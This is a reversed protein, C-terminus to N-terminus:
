RQKPFKKNKSPKLAEERTKKSAEGELVITRKVLDLEIRASDLKVVDRWVRYGALISREWDNYTRSSVELHSSMSRITRLLDIDIVKVNKFSNRDRAAAFVLASIGEEIAVARGGDQVEDVRDNTKRKHGLLGRVVPSWGLIAAYSLHFVDHFRYGDDDFSNDTLDNGMRTGNVFVKTKLKGDEKVEVLEVSMNRDLQESSDYDSDYLSYKKTTKKWRSACKELNSRAIDDLKLDFKSATNSLYWLLDGLEESMRTSSNRRAEGDRLFKKYESLLEGVEGALGLLPVIKEMGKEAYKQDTDRAKQQYTDFDM